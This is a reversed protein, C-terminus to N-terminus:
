RRTQRQFCHQARDYTLPVPTKMFVSHFTRQQLFCGHSAAFQSAAFELRADNNPLKRLRNTMTSREDHRWQRRLGNESSLPVDANDKKSNRLRRKQCKWRQIGPPCRCRLASSDTGWTKIYSGTREDRHLDDFHVGGQQGSRTPPPNAGAGVNCAVFFANVCELVNTCHRQHLKFTDRWASLFWSWHKDKKIDCGGNGSYNGLCFAATRPTNALNLWFYRYFVINDVAFSILVPVMGSLSVTVPFCHSLNESMLKPPLRM